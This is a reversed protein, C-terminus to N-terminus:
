LPNVPLYMELDYLNKPHLQPDNKHSIYYAGDGPQYGSYPLWDNFLHSWAANADEMTVENLSLVAYRGDAITRQSIDNGVKHTSEISIAVDVSLNEPATTDPHGGSFITLAKTAPPKFLNKPLAWNMLKQFMESFLVKDMPDYAGYHRIYAIKIEPIAKVEINFDTKKNMKVRWKPQHNSFDIYTNSAILAKGINSQATCINSNANNRWQSPSQKFLRKFDRSFVSSSSYGMDYAISTINERPNNLLIFAARELKVRCVFANLSEGRISKFVRHFHYKSFNAISALHELSLDGKPQQRIYDVVRNVRITYQNFFDIDQL